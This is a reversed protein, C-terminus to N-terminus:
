GMRGTLGLGTAQAARPWPGGDRGAFIAAAPQLSPPPEMPATADWAAPLGEDRGGGDDNGRSTTDSNQVISLWTPASEDCLLMTTLVQSALEEDEEIEGEWGLPERPSDQEVDIEQLTPTRERPNGTAPSSMREMEDDVGEEDESEVEVAKKARPEDWSRKAKQRELKKLLRHQAGNEHGNIKSNAHQPAGAITRQSLGVLGYKGNKQLSGQSSPPLREIGRPKKSVQTFRGRVDGDLDLFGYIKCRILEVFIHCEKPPNVPSVLLQGGQVETFVLLLTAYQGPLLM